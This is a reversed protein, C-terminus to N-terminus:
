PQTRNNDVPKVVSFRYSMTNTMWDDTEKITTQNFYAGFTFDLTRGANTRPKVDGLYALDSQDGATNISLVNRMHYKTNDRNDASNSALAKDTKKLFLALEDSNYSHVKDKETTGASVLKLANNASDVTFKEVEVKITSLGNNVIYCTPALLKAADPDSSATASTNKMAVLSVRTPVTVDIMYDSIPVAYRSTNNDADKLYIFLHTMGNNKAEDVVSKKMLIDIDATEQGNRNVMQAGLLGTRATIGDNELMSWNKAATDAAQSDALTGFAWGYEKIGAAIYSIRGSFDSNGPYMPTTETTAPDWFPGTIRYEAEKADYEVTIDKQNQKPGTVDVLVANIEGDTLSTGAEGQEGICMVEAVYFYNQADIPVTFDTKGTAGNRENTPTFTMPYIVIKDGKANEDQGNQTAVQNSTKFAGNYIGAYAATTSGAPVTLNMNMYTNEHGDPNNIATKPIRVIYGGKVRHDNDSDYDVYIHKNIVKKDTGIVHAVSADELNSRTTGEVSVEDPQEVRVSMAHAKPRYFEITAQPEGDKEVKTVQMNAGTGDSYYSYEYNDQSTKTKDPHYIVVEGHEAKLSDDAYSLLMRDFEKKTKDGSITVKGDVYLPSTTSTGGQGATGTTVTKPIKLETVGQAVLNGIHGSEKMLYLSARNLTVKGGNGDTGARDNAENQAAPTVAKSDFRGTVRFIQNRYNTGTQNEGLTLVDFGSLGAFSAEYESGSTQPQITVTKTGAVTAAPNGNEDSGDGTVQGYTLVIKARTANDAPLLINLMSANTVTGATGRGGGYLNAFNRGEVTIDTKEVTNGDSGGYVSIGGTISGQADTQMKAEASSAITLKHGNAFLNQTTGAAPELYINKLVNEQGFFSMDAALAVSVPSAQESYTYDENQVVNSVWTIKAPNVNALLNMQQYDAEDFLYGEQFVAITYEGGPSTQEKQELMQLAESVKAYPTYTENGRKLAVMDSTLAITRRLPRASMRIPKGDSGTPKFGDDLYRTTVQATEQGAPVNPLYLIVDNAKKEDTDNAYSIKVRNTNNDSLVPSQSTLQMVAKNLPDSATGSPRKIKLEGLTNSGQALMNLDTAGKLSGAKKTTTGNSLLMTAGAAIRTVGEYGQNDATVDDTQANLEEKVETTGSVIQLDDYNYISTFIYDGHIEINSSSDAAKANETGGYVVPYMAADGHKLFVINEGFILDGGNGQIVLNDHAAIERNEGQDYKLVINNFEVPIDKPLILNQTRMRIRYRTGAAGDPNSTGRNGSQFILKEVKGTPLAELAAKDDETFDTELINTVTYVAKSDTTAIANFAAGYTKFWNQGGVAPEVKIIGDQTIQTVVLNKGDDTSTIYQKNAEHNLSQLEFDTADLIGSSPAQAIFEGSKSNNWGFERDTFRGTYFKDNEAVNAAKMKIKYGNSVFEKHILFAGVNVNRGTHLAKGYGLWQNSKYVTPGNLTGDLNKTGKVTFTGTAINSRQWGGSSQVIQQKVVGSGLLEFSRQSAMAVTFLSTGYHNNGTEVKPFIGGLHIEGDVGTDVTMHNYGTIEPTTKNTVTSNTKRFVVYEAKSNFDIEPFFIRDKTDSLIYELKKLKSGSFSPHSAVSYGHFPENTIARTSLYCRDWILTGGSETMNFKQGDYAAMRFTIFMNPLYYTGTSASWGDGNKEDTTYDFLVSSNENMGSIQSKLMDLRLLDGNPTDLPTIIIDAQGDKSVFNSWDPEKDFAGTDSNFRSLYYLSKNSNDNQIQDINVTFDRTDVRYNKVTSLSIKNLVRDVTIGKVPHKINTDYYTHVDVVFQEAKANEPKSFVLILDGHTVHVGRDFGLVLKNKEPNTNESGILTVTGDVYLPQTEAYVQDKTHNVFIYNGTKDSVINGIAGSETTSGCVLGGITYRIADDAFILGAGGYLYITGNRTHDTNTPDCDMKGYVRLPLNDGRITLSDFDQLNYVYGGNNFIIEKRHTQVPKNNSEATNKSGGYVSLFYGLQNFHRDRDFTTGKEFTLKTYNAYIAGEKVTDSCNTSILWGKIITETGFFNLDGTIELETWSRANSNGSSDYCGSWTIKAANSASSLNTYDLGDYNFIGTKVGAAYEMAELDKETAAYKNDKCFSITYVSGPNEEEKQALAVIAGALDNHSSLIQDNGDLLIVTPTARVQRTVYLKEGTAPDLASLTVVYTGEQLAPSLQKTDAADVTDVTNAADAVAVTDTSVPEAAYTSISYSEPVNQEAGRYLDSIDEVTILAGEVAKGETDSVDRVEAGSTLDYNTSGAPIELDPAYIYYGDVVEVTRKTTFEEGTVPHKAGITVHYLGKELGADAENGGQQDPQRNGSEANANSATAAEAKGALLETEDVIYLETVEGGNEDKATMGSTLDYSTNRTGIYLTPADFWIRERPVVRVERECTIEENTEPDIASLEITYTGVEMGTIEPIGTENEEVLVADKLEEANKVFIEVKRQKKGDADTFCADEFLLEPNKLFLTYEIEDGTVEESELSFSAYDTDDENMWFSEDIDDQAGAANSATAQDANIEANSDTAISIESNLRIGFVEANAPIELHPDDFEINSGTDSAVVRVIRDFYIIGDNEDLAGDEADSPTATSVNNGDLKDSNENSSDSEQEKSEGSEITEKEDTEHTGPEDSKSEGMGSENNEDSNAEDTEKSETETPEDAEGSEPTDIVVPRTEVTETELTDTATKEIEAAYVHGTLRSLIRAFFGEKKASQEGYKASDKREAADTSDPEKTSDADKINDEKELNDTVKTEANDTNERNGKENGDANEAESKNTDAKDKTSDTESDVTFASDLDPDTNRSVTGDVSDSYREDDEDLPTLSYEVTYKGLVEIDFDGTDEVMLEYKGKDYTIGETLDYNESGQVLRLEPAKYPKIEKAAVTGITTAAVVAGMLGYIARHSKKKRKM